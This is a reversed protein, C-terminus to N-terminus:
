TASLKFPTIAPRKTTVLIINNSSRQGYMVTSLADKLVSISAISELEISAFDRPIGDVLITPIQGRIRFDMVSVPDDTDQIGSRQRTYLGSLRGPLAQLFSPAPTTILQETYITSTAQLLEKVDQDKHLL